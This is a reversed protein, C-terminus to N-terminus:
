LDLIQKKKAEFETQTIVGMELLQKLEILENYKGEPKTEAQQIPNNNNSMDNEMSEIINRGADKFQHAYTSHLMQVTDGLRKAIDYDSFDYKGMNNILWSAHSHRFDHIRIRKLQQDAPKGENIKNLVKIMQKRPRDDPLPRYYGFVYCNENFGYMKKHVEKWELLSDKVVKFMPINRISNQTKPTTITYTAGKIKNTVTKYIRVIDNKFDIDKWQLAMTEGKRTGMYYLFIYFTKMEQDEVAEIFRNFEDPEWFGMEKKVIDKDIRLKVKNMPNVQLYDCEVAYKFVSRINYYFKEVYKHSYEKELENMYKQLYDKTILNIKKSGMVDNVKDLVDRYTRLTVQKVNLSHLFETTLEKFTMYHVSAQIDQYQMRFVREYEKAEKQLKCGQALKTYSYYTGDDKKIKGSIYWKNNKKLVAMTMVERVIYYCMYMCFLM